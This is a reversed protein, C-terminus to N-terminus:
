DLIVDEAKTATKIEYEEKDNVEGFNNNLINNLM